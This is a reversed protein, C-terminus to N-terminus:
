NCTSYSTSWNCSSCIACKPNSVTISGGSPSSINKSGSVMTSTAYSTDYSTFSTNVYSGGGGGGNDYVGAAGGVYGGGGGGCAYQHQCKSCSYEWELGGDGGPASTLSAFNTANVTTGVSASDDSCVGSKGDENTYSTASNSNSGVGCYNKDVHWGGGGGGGAIMLLTNTSNRTLYVWSAGGGGGGGNFTSCDGSSRVPHTGGKSGVRFTIVDDRQLKYCGAVTAGSCGNNGSQGVNGDGGKVTFCYVGPINIYYKYGNSVTFAAACREKATGSTATPALGYRNYPTEEGCSENSQLIGDGCFGCQDANVITCSDSCTINSNEYYDSRNTGKALNCLKNTTLKTSGSNKTDNFDCAESPFTSADGTWGPGPYQSSGNGTVQDSCTAGNTGCGKTDSYDSGKYQV